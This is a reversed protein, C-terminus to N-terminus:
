NINKKAKLSFLLPIKSKIGPVFWNGKNDKQMNEIIKEPCFDFEHFFEIQLKAEVLSSILDGVTWKWTYVPNKSIYNPNAYDREEEWSEPKNSTSFYNQEFIINYDDDCAIVNAIPHFDVFYLFGGKKLYNNIIKAWIKLDSLWYLVGYSCFVIDFKDDLIMPLNYIDSCIFNVSSNIDKSLKKALTIAKESIDVATVNAGDLALSISDLGFHCQLHLIKKNKINGLEKIEPNRLTSKGSKLDDIKYFGRTKLHIAVVEDWWAKNRKRYKESELYDQILKIDKKDRLKNSASKYKLIYKLKVFRYSNIIESDRIVKDINKILPCSKWIEIHTNKIKLTFQKEKYELRNKLDDLTKNNVVIDLDENDRIGRVALAASGIIAYKDKPLNLKNLENLYKM